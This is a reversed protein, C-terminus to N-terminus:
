YLTGSPCLATPTLAATKATLFASRVGAAFIRCIERCRSSPSKMGGGLGQLFAEKIHYTCGKVETGTIVVAKNM